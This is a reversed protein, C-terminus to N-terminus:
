EFDDEDDFGPEHDSDGDNEDDFDDEDEVIFDDEDENEDDESDSDSEDSSDVSFQKGALRLEAAVQCLRRRIQRFRQRLEEEEEPDDDIIFGMVEELLREDDAEDFEEDSSEERVMAAEYEMEDDAVVVETRATVMELDSMDETGERADDNRGADEHDVLAHTQRVLTGDIWSRPALFGFIRVHTEDVDEIDEESLPQWTGNVFLYVGGQLFM